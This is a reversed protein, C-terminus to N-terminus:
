VWEIKYVTGDEATVHDVAKDETFFRSISFKDIQMNEPYDTGPPILRPRVVRTKTEFQKFLDRKIDIRFEGEMDNHIEALYAVDAERRSIIVTYEEAM